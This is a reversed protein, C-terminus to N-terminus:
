VAVNKAFCNLGGLRDLYNVKHLSPALGWAEENGEIDRDVFGVVRVIKGFRTGM